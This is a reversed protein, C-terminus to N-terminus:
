ANKRKANRKKQQKKKQKKSEQRKKEEADKKAQKEEQEKKKKAEKLEKEEKRSIEKEKEKKPTHVTQEKEPETVPVAVPAASPPQCIPPASQQIDWMSLPVDNPASWQGAPPATTPPIGYQNQQWLSDIQQSQQKQQQLQKLLSSIPDQDQQSGGQPGPIQDPPRPIAAAAGTATALGTLPLGNPGLSVAAAPAQLGPITEPPLGGTLTPALGVHLQLHPDLAGPMNPPKVDLGQGTANSQDHADTSQGDTTTAYVPSRTSGWPEAAM